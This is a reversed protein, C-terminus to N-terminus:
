LGLELWEKLGRGLRWWWPGDVLTLKPVEGWCQRLVWLPGDIFDARGLGQMGGGLERRAGLM